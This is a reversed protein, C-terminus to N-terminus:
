LSQVYEALRGLTQKGGEIAGYEKVVIELAEKTPFVSKMTVLTQAGQEEFTITAQFHVKGDDGGHDHCIFEPERFDTFIINNPYDRGDPGHMM